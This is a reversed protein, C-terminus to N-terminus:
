PKQHSTKQKLEALERRCKFCSYLDKGKRPVPKIETNCIVCNWDHPNSCFLQNKNKAEFEKHCLQCVNILAKKEFLPKRSEEKIEKQCISCDKNTKGKSEDHYRHAAKDATCKSCSKGKHKTEGHILCERINISGEARCKSCKGNMHKTTGHILCEQIEVINERCKLCESNVFYTEGHVKCNDLTYKTNRCKYCKNGVHKTLGHNSCNKMTINKENLCKRCQNGIHKTNGHIECKKTNISKEATCRCCTKGAHKTLGHISCNKDEFRLLQGRNFGTYHGGTISNLCNPDTHWLDQILEKEHRYAQSRTDFISLVEKKLTKRYKKKWNGFKNNESAKGGSGYYGDNLCDEITIESYPKKVSSVGYYYKESKSSTIKYTYFSINPNFWAYVKDGTTEEISWGLEEVFLEINTKRKGNKHFVEGLTTGLINDPGLSVVYPISLKEKGRATSINKNPAILYSKTKDQSILKFGAHEYVKTNEGTTDQYTFIDYPSFEQKYYNVLKSAGGTVRVNQKFCLRLLETSYEAKKASTRPSCFQAVAILEKKYLLGISFVRTNPAASGSSHYAEVFSQATESDIVKVITKRAYVRRQM